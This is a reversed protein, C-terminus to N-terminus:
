LGLAKKVAMVAMRAGGEPVKFPRTAFRNLANQAFAINSEFGHITITSGDPAIKIDSCRLDIPRDELGDLAITLFLMKDRYSIERVVGIGDLNPNMFKDKVGNLALTTMKNRLYALM